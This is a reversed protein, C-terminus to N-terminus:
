RIGNAGTLRDQASGLVGGIAGLTALIWGAVTLAAEDPSDVHRFREDALRKADAAARLATRQM